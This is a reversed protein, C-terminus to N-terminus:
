MLVPKAFVLRPHWMLIFHQLCNKIHTNLCHWFNSSSTSHSVPKQPWSLLMLKCDNQYPLEGIDWLVHIYLDSHCHRKTRIANYEISVLKTKQEEQVCFTLGSQHTGVRLICSYHLTTSAGQNASHTRQERPQNEQMLFSM